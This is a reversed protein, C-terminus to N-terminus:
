KSSGHGGGPPAKGCFSSNNVCKDISDSDIANGPYLNKINIGLASLVSLVVISVLAIILAYEVLGQALNKKFYEKKRLFKM